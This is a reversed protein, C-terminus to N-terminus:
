WDVGSGSVPRNLWWEKSKKELDRYFNQSHMDVKPYKDQLKDLMSHFKDTMRQQKKVSVLSNKVEQSIAYAKVLKQIEGKSPIDRSEQINAEKLAEMIEKIAMKNNDGKDQLFM